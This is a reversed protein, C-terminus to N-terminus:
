KIYSGIIAGISSALFISMGALAWAYDSPIDPQRLMADMLSIHVIGHLKAVNMGFFLWVTAGAGLLAGILTSLKM